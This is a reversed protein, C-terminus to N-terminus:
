FLETKFEVVWKSEVVSVFYTWTLRDSGRFNHIVADFLEYFLAFNFVIRKRSFM